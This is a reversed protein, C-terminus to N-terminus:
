RNADLKALKEKAITVAEQDDSNEIISNLTAKAQAMENTAAYVDALLLFSKVRWQDYGDFTKSLEFITAEAEKYKKQQYESLAVLYKAEAGFEDKYDAAVKKLIDSAQAPNGQDFAIKGELLRAKGVGDPVVNGLNIVERVYVMASDYRKLSYYTDMLGIWAIGQEKKNEANRLLVRYSSVANSFNGREIELEASRQAATAVYTSRNDHIVQGYLQLAKGIDNLKEYSAALFYRADYLYKSGQYSQQFRDLADIAAQYKEAYFLNRANEFEVDELKNNGPNNKRVVSLVQNFEEPRGVASYAEQIGELASSASPSSPFESLIRKFDTIAHEYVQINYYSQARRLLAAPIMYSKPQENILRTFGKIAPSYDEKHFDIDAIQFLADDVYSSKPYQRILQEFQAKAQDERNMYVMTRGKQFLAYDNDVKGSASVREYAKMAETYNKAALYCDALRTTADELMQSDIGEPRALFDRFYGLAKSYEKQNYAIYGLAYLSKQGYVGTKPDKSLQTYIPIAKEPQGLGAFSEAKLYQAAMNLSEDMPNKLSKDLNVIANAFAQRNFDAVAQNYTLRQYTANLEPTRKKLKEIHTIAAANNNAKAYTDAILQDVEEAYKSGPYKSSFNQLERLAENHNGVEILVKAANFSAEEKVVPNFDMRSANQFSTLAYNPNGEQLYSIGLLYSAYQATSDKGAAVNKLIDIAGKFNENRFQSHGYHLAVLPNLAKKGAIKQYREYAAAAGKYDGKLYYVEAVYLAVEDMKQGSGKLIREGYTVLEDYRNLNYLSTVIWNPILDKYYPHNELRTFDSYAEQYNKKKYQIVGSYYAADAWNPFSSRTKLGNFLTLAKDEQKTYYYSMALQYSSEEKKAESGAYRVAKELYGIAKDYDKNDYFHRGLDSYILQAKPHEAHNRVFRDVQMEAEPYNLYLGTVAIYYQATVANYDSTSLLHSSEKLYESFEQRAALFNSKEFFELGKRFRAEPESYGLTNQADAPFGYMAALCGAILLSRKFFMYSQYPIVHQYRLFVPM